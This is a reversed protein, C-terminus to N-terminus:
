LDLKQKLKRLLTASGKKYLHLVKMETIDLVEAIENSGLEEMFLLALVIRSDEPIGDIAQAILDVPNDRLQSPFSSVCISLKKTLDLALAHAESKMVPSPNVEVQPDIVNTCDSSKLYKRSETSFNNM